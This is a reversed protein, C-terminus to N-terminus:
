QHELFLVCTIYFHLFARNLSNPNLGEIWWELETSHRTPVPRLNCTSSIQGLNNWLGVNCNPCIRYCSFQAEFTKKMEDHRWFPWEVWNGQFFFFRLNRIRGFIQVNRTRKFLSAHTECHLGNQSFESIFHQQNETFISRCHRIPGLAQLTAEQNFINLNFVMWM